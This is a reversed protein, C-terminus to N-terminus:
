AAPVARPEAPELAERPEVPEAGVAAEVARALRMCGAVEDETRAFGSDAIAHLVEATERLQDDTPDKVSTDFTAIRALITRRLQVEDDAYATDAFFKRQADTPEASPEFGGQEMFLRIGENWAVCLADKGNRFTSPNIVIRPGSPAPGGSAPSLPAFGADSPGAALDDRASM